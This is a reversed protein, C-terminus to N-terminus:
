LSTVNQNINSWENSPQGSNYYTVLMKPISIRYTQRNRKEEKHLRELIQQNQSILKTNLNESTMSHISNKLSKMDNIELEKYKNLKEKLFQM